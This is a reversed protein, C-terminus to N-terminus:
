EVRSPPVPRPRAVLTRNASPMPPESATSSPVSPPQTTRFSGAAAPVPADVGTVKRRREQEARQLAEFHKPM